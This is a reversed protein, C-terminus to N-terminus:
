QEIPSIIKPIWIKKFLIKINEESLYIRGDLVANNPKQIMLSKGKDIFVFQKDFFTLPTEFDKLSISFHQRLGLSEGLIRVPRSFSCQKKFVKWAISNAIRHVADTVFEDTFTTGEIPHHTIIKDKEIEKEEAQLLIDSGAMIWVSVPIRGLNFVKKLNSYLLLM